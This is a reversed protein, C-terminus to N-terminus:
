ENIKKGILIGEGSESIIFPITCENIELPIGQLTEIGKINLFAVQYFKVQNQGYDVLHMDKLGPLLKSMSELDYVKISGFKKLLTRPIISAYSGPDAHAKFEVSTNGMEAKILVNDSDEVQNISVKAVAKKNKWKEANEAYKAKRAKLINPIDLYKNPNAKADPCTVETGTANIAYHDTKGCCVCPWKDNKGQSKPKSDDKKAEGDKKTDVKVAAVKKDAAPEVKTTGYSPNRIKKQQFELDMTKLRDRILKTLDNITEVAKDDISAKVIKDGVIYNGQSFFSMVTKCLKTDRGIEDFIRKFRIEHTIYAALSNTYKELEVTFKGVEKGMAKLLGLYYVSQEVPTVEVQPQYFERLIMNTIDWWTLNKFTVTDLNFYAEFFEQEKPKIMLDPTTLGGKQVFLRADKVM